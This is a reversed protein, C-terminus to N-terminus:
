KGRNGLIHHDAENLMVENTPIADGISDARVITGVEVVSHDSFEVHLELDFMM